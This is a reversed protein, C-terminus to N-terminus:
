LHLFFIKNVNMNEASTRPLRTKRQTRQLSRSHCKVDIKRNWYMKLIMITNSIYRRGKINTIKGEQISSQKPCIWPTSKATDEAWLWLILHELQWQKSSSLILSIGSNMPLANQRCGHCWHSFKLEKQMQESMYSSSKFSHDRFNPM